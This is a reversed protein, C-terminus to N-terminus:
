NIEEEDFEVVPPIRHGLQEELEKLVAAEPAVLRVNQYYRYEEDTM